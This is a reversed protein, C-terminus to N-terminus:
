RNGGVIRYEDFGHKSFLWAGQAAGCDMSSLLWRCQGLAYLVALYTRGFQKGDQIQLVDSLPIRKSDSRQADYDYRVRDQQIFLLGDPFAAQFKELHTADETALFVYPIQYKKMWLKAAEIMEECSANQINEECRQTVRIDYDTGRSVIGLVSEGRKLPEPLLKWLVKETEFNPRLVSGVAGLDADGLSFYFQFFAEMQYFNPYGSTWFLGDVQIVNASKLAEEVRIRSVPQFFYEWVNEAVGSTALLYQNPQQDLAVVPIWGRQRAICVYAYTFKMIDFLGASQTPYRLLLITQGQNYDGLHKRRTIWLISEMLLVSNIVTPRVGPLPDHFREVSEVICTDARPEQICDQWKKRYHVERESFFCTCLPDTCYLTGGMHVNSVVAFPAGDCCVYIRGIRFFSHM